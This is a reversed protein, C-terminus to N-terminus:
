IELGIEEFSRLAVTAQKKLNEWHRAAHDDYIGVTAIGVSAATSLATANDEFFVAEEVTGGLYRLAARYIEPDSKPLGVADCNLILNFYGSLGNRDLCPLIRPLTAATVLAMKVGRRKLEDLLARAGLKLEISTAYKHDALENIEQMISEVTGQCGHDLFCQATEQESLPVLMDSFGDPVTVGHRALIAEDVEQWMGMSDVLTGDFDFLWIKKQELLDKLM